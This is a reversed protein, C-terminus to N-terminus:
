TTRRLGSDLKDIIVAWDADYQIQEHLFEAQSSTWFFAEHLRVDRGLPSNLEIFTEIASPESPLGLQAFLCTMSHFNDM